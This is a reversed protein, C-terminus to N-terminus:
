RCGRPGIFSRTCAVIARVRVHREGCGVLAAVGHAEGTQYAVASSRSNMQTEEVSCAVGAVDCHPGLEGDDNEVGVFAGACAFGNVDRRAGSLYGVVVEVAEGGGRLPLPERGPGTFVDSGWCTQPEIVCVGALVVHEGRGVLSYGDNQCSLAGSVRDPRM